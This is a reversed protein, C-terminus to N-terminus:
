AAASPLRPWGIFLNIDTTLDNYIITVIGNVNIPYFESTLCQPVPITRMIANIM